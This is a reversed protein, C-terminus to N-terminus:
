KTEGKQYLFRDCVECAEHNDPCRLQGWHFQGRTDYYGAGDKAAREHESREFNIQLLISCVLGFMVGFCFGTMTKDM